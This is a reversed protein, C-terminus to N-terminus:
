HACLAFLQSALSECEKVVYEESRVEESFVSSPCITFVGESEYVQSEIEGDGAHACDFGFWWLGDSAAPYTSSGGSYTLGGHVDVVVDLSRRLLGEGDSGVTGILLLLPSKKGLKSSNAVIQSILDTQQSYGVGHLQHGPPVGVYGCRHQWRGSLRTKLCVARFGAKTIWDREVLYREENM